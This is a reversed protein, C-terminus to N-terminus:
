LMRWNSGIYVAPCNRGHQRNRIQQHKWEHPSKRCREQRFRYIYFEQQFFRHNYVITTLHKKIKPHDVFDHFTKDGFPMGENTVDVCHGRTYRMGEPNM